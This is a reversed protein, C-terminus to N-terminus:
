SLTTDVYIGLYKSNSVQETETNHVSVAPPNSNVPPSFIMKTKNPNMILSNNECWQM